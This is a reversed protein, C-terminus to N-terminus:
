RSLEELRTEITGELRAIRDGIQDQLGDTGGVASEVDTELEAAESSIQPFGYSGGAGKLQHALYTIREAATADPPFSKAFIDRIERIKEAAEGLFEKRLEDFEDDIVM